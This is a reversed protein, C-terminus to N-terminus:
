LLHVEEKYKGEDIAELNPRKDAFDYPCFEDDDTTPLAAHLHISELWLSTISYNFM